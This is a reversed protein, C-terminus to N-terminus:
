ASLGRVGDAVYQVALAALLVGLVRTVVNVGTTGLLRGLPGALRLAAYVLVLVAAATGLVVVLGMRQARAEAALIMVSALAGPGAILPIALPFVTIDRRERSEAEEAETEREHEALVMAMAIRFLLIGGAIRFAELSIGLHTLTWSGGLGFAALLGGAILVARLAIGKIEGASRGAALGVFVPAVGVPDVVVLLTLFSRLLLATM